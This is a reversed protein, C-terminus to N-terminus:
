EILIWISQANLSLVSVTVGPTNGVSTVLCSYALIDGMFDVCSLTGNLCLTTPNYIYVEKANFITCTTNVHPFLKIEGM